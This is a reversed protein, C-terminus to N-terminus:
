RGATVERAERAHDLSVPVAGPRLGRFDNAYYRNGVGRYNGIGAWVQNVFKSHRVTTRTTGEDLYVGVVTTDFHSDQILNDVSAPKRDWAPDAWEANIGRSVNPGVHLKRLKSATTFHEVYVGVRTRDIRAHEILSNTFASGTWIGTLSCRDVSVRRVHGQSGLWLCAEATGDSSGPVRRAVGSVHLDEILYPVGARYARDNPDVVVGFSRFRSAVVRRAVFGEPQRVVLGASVTWHGHLSTDLVRAKRASGWVHIVDGHLTKTPDTIEFRLGQVLAGAQGEHGGLVMGARLVARGPRAAYVRHGYANSFPRPSDYVGPAVIITSPRHNELAAALQSSSRVRIGHRPPRYAAPRVPARVRIAPVTASVTETPTASGSAGSETSCGLQAAFLCGALAVLAVGFLSAM